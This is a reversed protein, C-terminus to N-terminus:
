TSSLTPKVLKEIDKFFVDKTNCFPLRWNPRQQWKVLRARKKQPKEFLLYLFSDFENKLVGSRIPIKEFLLKVKPSLGAIERTIKRFNGCWLIVFKKSSSASIFSKRNCFPLGLYKHVFRFGSINIEMQTYSRSTRSVKGATANASADQMKAKSHTTNEMQDETVFELSIAAKWPKFLHKFISINSNRM